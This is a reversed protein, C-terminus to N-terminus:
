DSRFVDDTMAGQATLASRSGRDAVEEPAEIVMGDGEFTSTYTLTDVDVVEFVFTQPSTWKGRRSSGDPMRRYVGDLGIEWTLEQKGDFLTLHVVAKDPDDFSIRFTEV